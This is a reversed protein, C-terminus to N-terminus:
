FHFPVSKSSVMIPYQKYNDCITHVLTHKTCTRTGKKLTHRIMFSVILIRNVYVLIGFVDIEKYFYM